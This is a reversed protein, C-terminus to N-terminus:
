EMYDNVSIIDKLVAYITLGSVSKIGTKQTINKRHTIVTHTSINLKDAIEKNARGAVLLKLVDIERDSLNEQGKNPNHNPNLLKQVSSILKGPSDNIYIVDDLLSIIQPDTLTYAIGIWHTEPFKKRVAQLERVQNQILAPNIMVVDPTNRISIENFNRLNEATLTKHAMGANALIGIIGQCIIASPEILAITIIRSM